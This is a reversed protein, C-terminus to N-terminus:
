SIERQEELARLHRDAKMREVDIPQIQTIPCRNGRVLVSDFTTIASATSTVGVTQAYPLEYCNGTVTLLYAKDFTTWLVLQTRSIPQWSDHWMATFGDVPEGLYPEYRDYLSEGKSREFGGGTTACASALFAALVIATLTRM